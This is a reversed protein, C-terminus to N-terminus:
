SAVRTTQKAEPLAEPVLSFSRYWAARHPTLPVRLKRARICYVGGLINQRACWCTELFSLKQQLWESQFPPRLGVCRHDELRFNLVTLWDKIRHFGYFHQNWPTGGFPWLRRLGYSSWPNLLVLVLSGGPALAWEAQRLVAHPDDSFELAHALVLLDLSCPAVPLSEPRAWLQGQGSGPYLRIQRRVHSKSEEEPGFLSVPGCYMAYEGHLDKQLNDLCGRLHPLLATGAQSRYWDDM